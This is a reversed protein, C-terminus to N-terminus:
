NSIFLELNKNEETGHRDKGYFKIVNYGQALARTETFRGETDIFIEHDNMSLFSINETVGRITVVNESLTSGNEPSEIEIVPGRIVHRFEYVSYLGIGVVVVLIGCATAIQRLSM